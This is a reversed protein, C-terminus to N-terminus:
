FERMQRTQVRSGLWIDKLFIDELIDRKDRVFFGMRRTDKLYSVLFCLSLTPFKEEKKEVFPKKM